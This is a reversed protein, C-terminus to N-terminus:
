RKNATKTTCYMPLTPRITGGGALPIRITNKPIKTFVTVAHLDRCINERELDSDYFVQEFLYNDPVPENSHFRGIDAGAIEAKPEGNNDTFATPHVSSHIERYGIQQTSIFNALLWEKFRTHIERITPPKSLLYGM